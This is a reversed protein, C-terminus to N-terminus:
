KRALKNKILFISCMVIATIGIILTVNTYQSLGMEIENPTAGLQTMKYMYNVIGRNPM